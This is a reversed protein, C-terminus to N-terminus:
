LTQLSLKNKQLALRSITETLNQSLTLVRIYSSQSLDASALEYARIFSNWTADAYHEQKGAEKIPTAEKLADALTKMLDERTQRAEEGAKTFDEICGTMLANTLKDAPQKLLAAGADYAAQWETIASSLYMSKNEESRFLM